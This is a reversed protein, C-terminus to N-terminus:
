EALQRAFAPVIASWDYREAVLTRGARALRM